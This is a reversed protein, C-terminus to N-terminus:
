NNDGTQTITFNEQNYDIRYKEGRKLEGALIKNAILSRIKKRIIRRLPRAGYEPNYGLESLRSVAKDTISLKIGKSDKVRWFLRKLKLRAIQEIEETKLPTFVIVDDFRNILEPKFIESLKEKIMKKIEEVSTQKKVEREILRSHANSTCIIITQTFDVIHGMEDTIRGDEFVQLFLNLVDQHAKEFEDLLVLSFPNNKVAETLFGGKEKSGILRYISDRAQYESMDFRLMNEEGGFYEYALTKALETKGVGTPGVFLFTGIPGGTRTLGTRAQRLTEAVAKVAPDQNILRQHLKDQLKLLSKAEKKTVRTLPIGSRKSFVSRVHSKTVVKKGKGKAYGVAQRLLDLASGPLLRHHIYRSAVNVAEKIAYYGITLNEKKELPLSRLLLFQIAQQPSIEKVKITNFQAALDSNREVYRHYNTEDTTAIVPFDIEQFVPGFFSMFSVEQAQAAKILNHIQPIALVINKSALIEDMIKQLREQLDGPAKVGALVRGVDLSVLRQDKLREPAKDRVIQKALHEIITTRGSGADGVLLANNSVEQTLINLLSKFEPKHGVLGGIQGARALDTLDTSFQDLFYTPKATWSRNMHVHKIKRKPKRPRFHFKKRLRLWSAVNEADELKVEKGLFLDKIYLPPDKTLVILLHHNKVSSSNLHLAEVFAKKTFNQLSQKINEKPQKKNQSLGAAKKEAEKKLEQIDIELHSLLKKTLPQDLLTLFASMPFPLGQKRSKDLAQALVKKSSPAFYFAVNLNKTKIEKKDIQTLFKKPRSIKWLHHFFYLLVLLGLWFLSFAPARKFFLSLLVPKIDFSANIGVLFTSFGLAFIAGWIIFSIIHVMRRIKSPWQVQPDHFFLNTLKKNAVLLNNYLDVQGCHERMANGARM